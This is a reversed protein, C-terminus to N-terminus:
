SCLEGECANLHVPNTSSSEPCESILRSELAKLIGHLAYSASTNFLMESTEKTRHGKPDPNITIISDCYHRCYNGVTPITEGVGIVLGVLKKRRRKKLWAQFRQEQSVTRKNCWYLDSFMRVNPRIPQACENCLPLLRNSQIGSILKTNCEPPFDLISKDGQYCYHLKEASLDFVREQCNYLCQWWHIAGHHEVIRNQDFGAEEFYGDINSTLVFHSEPDGKHAALLELLMRLAYYGRHPFHASIDRLYNGYFTALKLPQDNLYKPSLFDRIDKGDYESTNSWLGNDWYTPLGAEASMGAGAAVIIADAALLQTLALEFLKPDSM